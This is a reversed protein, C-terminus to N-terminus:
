AGKKLDGCGIDLRSKAKRSRQPSLKETSVAKTKQKLMAELEKEIVGDQATSGDQRSDNDDDDSVDAADKDDDDIEFKLFTNLSDCAKDIEDGFSESLIRVAVVISDFTQIATSFSEYTCRVGEIVDVRCDSQAEDVGQDGVERFHQIWGGAMSGTTIVARGQM